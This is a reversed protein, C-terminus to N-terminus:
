VEKELDLLIACNLRVSKRQQQQCIAESVRTSRFEFVCIENEWTHDAYIRISMDVKRGGIYKNTTGFEEEVMVRCSRAATSVLEGPIARIKSDYFLVNLIHTWASVFVHESTPPAFQETALLSCIHSVVMLVTHVAKQEKTKIGTERASNGLLEWVKVQLGILTAEAYPDNDLGPCLVLLLESLLAEITPLRSSLSPVLSESKIKPSLTFAQVRSLTNIIGSLLVSNKKFECLILDYFPTSKARSLEEDTVDVEAPDEDQERNAPVNSQGGVTIIKGQRM